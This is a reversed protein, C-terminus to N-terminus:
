QAHYHRPASLGPPVVPEAQSYATAVKGDQLRIVTASRGGNRSYVFTELMHGGSFTVASLAPDGYKDTIADEHAGRSIQEVAPFPRPPAQVRVVPAAPSSAVVATADAVVPEQQVEPAASKFKPVHKVVPAPTPAAAPEEIQTRSSSLPHTPSKIWWAALGGLAIICIVMLVTGDKLM